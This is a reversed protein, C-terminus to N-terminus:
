RNGEGHRGFLHRIIDKRTVMGVLVRDRDIVPVQEIRRCCILEVVEEVPCDQLVRTVNRTMIEILKRQPARCELVDAESVFGVLEGKANVVPLGSPGEENLFLGIAEGATQEPRLSVVPRTVVAGVEDRMRPDLTLEICMESEGGLEELLHLFGLKCYIHRAKLNGTEVCLWIREFGLERSTQKILRTLQTGIGASQFPPSVAVNFESRQDDIAFICGHCVVEDDFSLGVLNFGDEMMARVWETLKQPNAPPLGQYSEKPEFDRHMKLIREHEDATAPRFLIPRGRRDVFSYPLSRVRDRDFDM